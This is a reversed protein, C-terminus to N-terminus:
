GKGEVITAEDADARGMRMRRITTAPNLVEAVLRAFVKQDDKLAVAMPCRGGAGPAPSLLWALYRRQGLRDRVARLGDGIPDDDDKM